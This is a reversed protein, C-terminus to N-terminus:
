AADDGGGPGLERPRPRLTEVVGQMGGRLAPRDGKALRKAALEDSIALGRQPNSAWDRTVQLYEREYREAQKAQTITQTRGPDPMERLEKATMKSVFRAVAEHGEHTLREVLLVMGTEPEHYPLRSIRAAILRYAETWPPPPGQRKREVAAAIAGASLVFDSSTERVVELAEEPAINRAGIEAVYASILDADWKATPWTGILARAFPQWDTETEDTM